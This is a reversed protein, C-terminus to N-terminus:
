RSSARHCLVRHGTDGLSSCGSGSRPHNSDFHNVIFWYALHGGQMQSYRSGCRVLMDAPNPSNSFCRPREPGDLQGCEGGCVGVSEVVGAEHVGRGVYGAVHLAGDGHESVASESVDARERRATRWNIELPHNFLFGILDGLM